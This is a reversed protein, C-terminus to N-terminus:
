ERSIIWGRGQRRYVLRGVFKRNQTLRIINGESLLRSIAQITPGVNNDGQEDRSCIDNWTDESIAIVQPEGSWDDAIPHEENGITATHPDFPVLYRKLDAGLRLLYFDNSDKGQYIPEDWSQGKQVLIEHNNKPNKLYYRM